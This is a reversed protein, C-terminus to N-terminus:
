VMLKSRIDEFSQERVLEGTDFVLPLDKFRGSQSHKFSQVYEGDSNYEMPFKRVDIEKGDVEM